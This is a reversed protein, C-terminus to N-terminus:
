PEKSYNFADTCHVNAIDWGFAEWARDSRALEGVGTCSRFRESGAECAQQLCDASQKSLRGVGAAFGERQRGDLYLEKLNRCGELATGLRQVELRDNNMLSVATLEGCGSLEVPLEGALANCHLFLASLRPWQGDSLPITGTLQNDNLFLVELNGLECLQPPIHGSLQNNGLYLKRLEKCRGLESPIGGTLQNHGAYLRRLKLCQGISAPFCGKMDNDFLYLNVLNRCDGLQQPVVGSLNNSELRLNQLKTCSGIQEPIACSLEASGKAGLKCRPLCLTTLQAFGAKPSRNVVMEELLPKGSSASSGDLDIELSELTPPLHKVLTELAGDDFADCNQMSFSLKKLTSRKLRETCRVMLPNDIGKAELVVRWFAQAFRGHLRANVVEYEWDEGLDLLKGSRTLSAREAAVTSKIFELIRLRDADKTAKGDQIRSDLAARVLNLPFHKERSVKIFPFRFQDNGDREALGDTIGVADRPEELDMRQSIYQFTQRTTTGAPKTEVARDFSKMDPGRCGARPATYVEYTEFSLGLYIELGCWIRDYTVGDEDMVSLVRGKALRIAKVFSSGSPDATVDGELRHQNNAYACVWYPTGKALGHDAAHREICCIFLRIPEGWWHSVFWEPLQPGNAVLEIYSCERKATAPKIVYRVAEYLTVTKPKLLDGRVNAWREPVCRRQIHAWVACLQSLTIGREETNTIECGGGACLDDFVRDSPLPAMAMLVPESNYFGARWENRSIVGDKNTDVVEMLLKYDHAHGHSRLYAGLEDASIVGDGNLDIAYFVSDPTELDVQLCGEPVM